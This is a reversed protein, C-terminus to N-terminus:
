RRRVSRVLARLPATVRWSTSSLTAALLLEQRSARERCEALQQRAAIGAGEARECARELAAAAARSHQLEQKLDSVQTHAAAIEAAFVERAATHAERDARREQRLAGAESRAVALATAALEEDANAPHDLQSSEIYLTCPLSQLPQDSAVAVTYQARPLGTSCEIHDGRREFSLPVQEPNPSSPLMVSGIMPRQRLLHVYRFCKGLNAAFEQKTLERVHFPNAPTNVPSYNEQDPTSIILMGDPRLIRLIEALFAEHEIFHEITEFSVVVDASKDAVPM